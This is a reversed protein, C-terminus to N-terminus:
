GRRWPCTSAEPAREPTWAQPPRRRVGPRVPGPLGAVRRAAAYATRRRPVRGACLTGPREEVTVAARRPGPIARRPEARQCAPLCRSCRAPVAAPPPRTLAAGPQGLTTASQPTCPQRQAQARATRSSTNASSASAAPCGCHRWSARWAASRPFRTATNSGAAYPPYLSALSAQVAPTSATPGPGAAAAALPSLSMTGSSSHSAQASRTAIM